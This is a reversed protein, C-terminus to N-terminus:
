GGTVCDAIARATNTLLAPYLDAGPELAVGEPDLPAGIRVGTAEALMAAYAASHNVEPFICVAGAAALRDRLAALRAAGPEAADGLAVTGLINVGFARAFYGYADHHVVIGADGVPTLIDQVEAKVAAIRAQAAAANAQYTAANVPDLAALRTAIAGV